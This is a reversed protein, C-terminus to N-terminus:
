ATSPMPTRPLASDATRDPSCRSARRHRSPGRPPCGGPEKVHPRKPLLAQVSGSRAAGWWLGAGYALDDLRRGAALWMLEPSPRSSRKEVAAVLTDVVMASVLAKRTRRSVGAAVAVAPWWHRLLLASEQRVSWVLGRSALRLSIIRLGPVAPLAQEITRMGSAVAVAALPLSWRSRSLLAAGGAAYLPTLVAPALKDGHRAALGAGGSGYVFKRGLWGTMTPRADHRAEITPDYRVRHGAAVLRWVLDVDEGVRLAEDFGADLAPVRAILCASPLWAVAAGPRVVGATPGLSLSSADADYREFWRPSESRAIGRVRPGVLSVAPDAFHRGLRTLDIASVEVDSDVFAVYPTGVRALGINRAAAPGVNVELRILAAGHLDAVKAIPVAEISADDVVICRLGALAALTRDLQRPRDRVPTVVTIERAELPRVSDLVPVALNTALLRDALHATSGDSVSLSGSRLHEQARPSLQVAALPSGGVLVSGDGSRLTGDVLRVRFGDPLRM